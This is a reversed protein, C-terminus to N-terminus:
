KNEKNGATEYRNRNIPSYKGLLREYEDLVIKYCECAAEELGKRNIM